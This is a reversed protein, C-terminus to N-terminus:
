DYIYQISHIKYLRNDNRITDGVKYDGGYPQNSTFTNKIVDVKKFFKSFNIKEPESCNGTNIYKWNYILNSFDINSDGYEIPLM